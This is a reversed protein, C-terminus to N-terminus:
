HLAGVRESLLIFLVIPFTGFAEKVRWITTDTNTWHNPAHWVDFGSHFFLISSKKGEDVYLFQMPLMERHMSVDVTVIIQQKDGINIILVRTSGEEEMIWTSAVHLIAYM